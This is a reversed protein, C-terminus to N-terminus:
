EGLRRLCYSRRSRLVVRSSPGAQWARSPFVLLTKGGAIQRLALSIDAKSIPCLFSCNDISHWCRIIASSFFKFFSSISITANVSIPLPLSLNTGSTVSNRGNSHCASLCEYLAPSFEAMRDDPPLFDNTEWANYNAPRSITLLCLSREKLDCREPPPEWTQFGIFALKHPLNVRSAKPAPLAFSRRLRPKGSPRAWCHLGEPEKIM